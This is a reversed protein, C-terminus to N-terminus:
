NNGSEDLLFSEETYIYSDPDYAPGDIRIKKFGGVGSHAVTPHDAWIMDYTYRDDMFLVEAASANSCGTDLVKEYLDKLCLFSCPRESIVMEGHENKGKYLVLPSNIFRSEDNAYLSEGHDALVLITTKDYIGNEKLTETYKKLMYICGLASEDFDVGESCYEFNRNYDRIPHTGKLHYLHFTKKNECTKINNMQADFIYNAWDYREVQKEFGEEDTFYVLKISDMDDPYFWCLQKLQQPLYRFGVLKYIYMLLKSHSDVGYTVRYWNSSISPDNPIANIAYISIKYDKDNLNKLLESERYYDISLDDFGGECLYEQGTIIQLLSYDTMPYLSSADKLFVFDKLDDKVEEDYDGELLDSLMRSDFSDLVFIVFNEDESYDWEGETTCVVDSKKEFGDYRILAVVLTETMLLIFCIAIINEAHKIKDVPFKLMVFVTLVIIIVFLVVSKAGENPYLSWDIPKGNLVGYDANLFNGQIYLAIFVAFIFFIIRNWIKPCLKQFIFDAILGGILSCAFFALLYIGFDSLSLWTDQKIMLFLEIPAFVFFLFGIAPIAINCVFRNDSM